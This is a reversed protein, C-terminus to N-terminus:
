ELVENDASDCVIATYKDTFHIRKDKTLIKVQVAVKKDPIFSLTEEQSLRILIINDHIEIAQKDQSYLKKIKVRSGEQRFTVSMNSLHEPTLIYSEQEGIEFEYTPTSGRYIVIDIM